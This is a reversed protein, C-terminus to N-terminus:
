KQDTTNQQTQAPQQPTQVPQQPVSQAKAANYMAAKKASSKKDIKKFVFVGLFGLIAIFVLQPIHIVFVVFLEVLGDRLGILSKMFGNAMRSAASEKVVPTFEVVEDVSVYVTSYDVKNDYVRLQSEVNEIEYRITELKDELTILDELKTAQEMMALIREEETKLAKKKSEVDVYNLTVDNTNESFNIVHTAGGVFETFEDLRNSPIRFTYSATRKTQDYYTGNYVNSDEVYGGLEAVKNELNRTAQVFDNTEVSVNVTKILKRNTTQSSNTNTNSSNNTNTSANNNQNASSDNGQADAARPTAAAVEEYSADSLDFMVDYDAEAAEAYSSEAMQTDSVATASKSSGCATASLTLVLAFAITLLKRKM